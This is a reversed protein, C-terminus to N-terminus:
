QCVGDEMRVVRTAHAAVEDSHTVVLLASGHDARAQDLLDLVLAESSRDLEGTPEDALILAPENVVAMAIAVRQQEGGSLAAPRHNARHGVGLETLV